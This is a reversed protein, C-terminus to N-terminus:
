RLKISSDQVFLDILPVVISNNNKDNLDIKKSIIQYYCDLFENKNMKSFKDCQQILDFVKYIHNVNNWDWM